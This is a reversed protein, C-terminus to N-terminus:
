DAVRRIHGYILCKELCDVLKYYIPYNKEKAERYLRYLSVVPAYVYRADVINQLKYSENNINLATGKVITEIKVTIQKKVPEPEGYYKNEIDNLYYITAHYKPHELNFKKIYENAEVCTNNNTVFLELHVCFDDCKKYKNFAAQLEDSKKYTGNELATIARILFDNKVYEASITSSDSYYKNQILYIDKTDEYIEYADIGLDHYDVIKEEILEEDEFFMKDLVWYNFAWEPKSINPIHKHLNQYEAIDEEIQHRFDSM